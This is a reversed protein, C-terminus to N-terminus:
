CATKLMHRQNNCNCLIVSRITFEYSQSTFPKRRSISWLRCALLSTKLFNSTAKLITESSSHSCICSRTHSIILLTSKIMNQCFLLVLVRYKANPHSRKMPQDYHFYTALVSIDAMWTLLLTRPFYNKLNKKKIIFLKIERFTYTPIM